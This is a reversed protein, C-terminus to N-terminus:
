EVKEYEDTKCEFEFFSKDVTNWNSQNDFVINCQSYNINKLKISNTMLTELGKSTAQVCGRISLSELRLLYCLITLVSDTVANGCFSIDLMQIFPCGDVLMQAFESTLSCCFSLLLKTLKPCTVSLVKITADTLFSCDSLNLVELLFYNQSSLSSTTPTITATSIIKTYYANRGSNAQEVLLKKDDNNANNSEIVNGVIHKKEEIGNQIWKAFGFDTLGTCRQFSVKAVSGWGGDLVEDTLNKCHSLSIYKLGKAIKLIISFSLSTIKRCNSLDIYTLYDLQTSISILGTDTISWLNYLNLTILTDTHESIFKLGKDTINWCNKLNLYLTKTGSIRLIKNLIEDNIKKNNATLNINQLLKLDESIILHKFLKNVQRMKFLQKMELLFLIKSLLLPSLKLLGEGSVVLDASLFEMSRQICEASKQVHLRSEKKQSNNISEAFKTLRADSWPAISQKRKGEM